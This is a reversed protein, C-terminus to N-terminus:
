SKDYLISQITSHYQSPLRDIVKQLFGDTIMKTAKQKSLGRSMLYFLQEDNIRGTTSGHSAKVDNALIELSPISEALAENMLLVNDTFYSNTQQANKGVKLLGTFIGRSQDRYVGRLLIDANTSPAVHDIVIHFGHHQEKTGLFAGSVKVNSGPKCLEFWTEVEVRAGGTFGAIFHMSADKQLIGHIRVHSFQNKTGSGTLFINTHSNQEGTVVYDQKGEKISFSLERKKGSQVVENISRSVKLKEPYSRLPSKPPKSITPFTAIM